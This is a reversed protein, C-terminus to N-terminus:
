QYEFRLDSAPLGSPYGPGLTDQGDDNELGIAAESGPDDTRDYLLEIANGNEYLVIQATLSGTVEWMWDPPGSSGWTDVHHYEVTFTRNPASGSTEYYVGQGGYFDIGLDTMYVAILNNPLSPSGFEWHSGWDCKYPWMTVYGHSSIYASEYEVGNFEFPFGIQVKECSNWQLYSDWQMEEQFVMEGTGSISSFSGQAAAEVFNPLFATGTYAEAQITYPNPDGLSNGFVGLFFADSGWSTDLILQENTPAGL